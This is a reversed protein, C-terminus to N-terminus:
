FEQGGAYKKVSVSVFETEMGTEDITAEEAEEGVTPATKLRPIEFTM